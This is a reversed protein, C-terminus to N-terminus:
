ANPTGGDIIDTNLEENSDTYGERYVNMRWEMEKIQEQIASLVFSTAPPDFLIRVRLYIYSKISNLRVDTEFDEWTATDDEIMFGEDPGVGLQNLFSFVTNIHMIIDYDFDDNDPSLGLTKKTSRLISTTTTVEATDVM